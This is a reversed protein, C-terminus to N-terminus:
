AAPAAREKGRSPSGGFYSLLKWGPRRDCLSRALRLFRHRRHRHGVKGLLDSNHGGVWRFSLFIWLPPLRKQLCHIMRLPSVLSQRIWASQAMLHVRRRTRLEPKPGVLWDWGQPRGSFLRLPQTGLLFDPLRFPPFVGRPRAPANTGHLHLLPFQNGM